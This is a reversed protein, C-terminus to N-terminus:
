QDEPLKIGCHLQIYVHNGRKSRTLLGKSLLKNIVSRGDSNLKDTPLGDVKKVYKLFEFELNNVTINVGPSLQIKKYM